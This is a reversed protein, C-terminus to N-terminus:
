ISNDTKCSFFFSSRRITFKKYLIHLNISLPTILANQIPLHVSLTVQVLRKLGLVHILIKKGMKVFIVLSQKGLIKLLRGINLNHKSSIINM